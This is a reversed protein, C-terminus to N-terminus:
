DQVAFGAFGGMEKPDPLPVLSCQSNEVPSHKKFNKNRLKHWFGATSTLTYRGWFWFDSHSVVLLVLSWESVLIRREQGEPGENGSAAVRAVHSKVGLSLLLGQSPSAARWKWGGVEGQVPWPSSVRPEGAAGMRVGLLGVGLAAMRRQPLRRGVVGPVLREVVSGLPAWVRFIVWVWVTNVSHHQQPVVTDPLGAQRSNKCPDGLFVFLRSTPHWTQNASWAWGEVRLDTKTSGWHLHSHSELQDALKLCDRSTRVPGSWYVM